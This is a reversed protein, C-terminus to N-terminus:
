AAGPMTGIPGLTGPATVSAASLAQVESTPVESGSTSPGENMASEANQPQGRWTESRPRSGRVSMELTQAIRYDKTGFGSDGREVGDWITNAFTIENPTMRTGGNLSMHRIIGKRMFPGPVGWRPIQRLQLWSRNDGRELSIIYRWHLCRLDPRRDDKFEVQKWDLSLYNPRLGPIPCIEIIRNLLIVHLHPPNGNQLPLVM